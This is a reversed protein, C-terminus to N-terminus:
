RGKGRLHQSELRAGGGGGLKHKSKIQYKSFASCKTAWTPGSGQM